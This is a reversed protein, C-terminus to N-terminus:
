DARINAEKIVKGWKATEAAIYAGFQQPSVPTPLGGLELLRNRIEDDALAVNIEKNIREVIERPTGAPAAIGQFTAAEFGPLTEAITPVEPLMPLRELATVAIARTQGSKIPGISEPVPSFMAQVQEGMLAILAPGGGAFPVPTMEIGAIQGLLVAAIHQTSGVGATAVNIKGQNRKAWAIFEPLTKAPVALNTEFVLPLRSILAIQAFDHTVDYRLKSYLSPNLAVSGPELLLTYGDAVAHAVYEVGINTAAGSKNEVIVPQGLRDTLRQAMLRGIIDLAGGPPVPVILRVTHDPYNGARAPLAIQSFGAATGLQLATRRSIM